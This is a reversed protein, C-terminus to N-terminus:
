KEKEKRNTDLIGPTDVVTLKKKECIRTGFSSKGTVSLVSLKAKFIEQNLITNGTSSKGKGTQGVLVIRIEDKFISMISMVKVPKILVRDRISKSKSFKEISFYSPNEQAIKKQFRIIQRFMNESYEEEACGTFVRGSCKDVLARYFHPLTEVFEEINEIKLPNDAVFLIICYKCFDEGFVDELEVLTQEEETSHRSIRFVYLFVHPGPSLIKMCKSTEKKVVDQKM